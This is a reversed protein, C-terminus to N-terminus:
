SGALQRRPLWMAVTPWLTMLTFTIGMVLGSTPVLWAGGGCAARTILPAALHVALSVAAGGIVLVAVPRPVRCMLFLHAIILFFVPTTFLHFHTVELLKRRSAQAVLPTPEGLEEPAPLDLVPGGAEVQDPGIEAAVEGAPPAAAGGYYTAAGEGGPLGLIEEYLLGTVALGALSFLAFTTYVLRAGIPLGRIAAGNKGFQRM